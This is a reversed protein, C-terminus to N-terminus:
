IFCVHQIGTHPLLQYWSRITRIRRLRRCRSSSNVFLLQLCFSAFLFCDSLFVVVNQKTCGDKPGGHRSLSSAFRFLKTVLNKCHTKCSTIIRGREWAQGLSCPFELIQGPSVLIKSYWDLWSTWVSFFILKKKVSRSPQSIWFDSAVFYRRWWNRGKRYFTCWIYTPWEM